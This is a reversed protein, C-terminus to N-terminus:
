LVDDTTFVLDDPDRSRRVAEVEDWTIPTSVTPRDKARLSYVGVTTKHPDNQSWDVLVKGGRLSKKMNSVVLRPRSAALAEAVSRSFPKTEAYTVKGNLPLYLQLGKSGSTQAFTRLGLREFM